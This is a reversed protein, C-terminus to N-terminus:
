VRTRTRNYSPRLLLLLCGSFLRGRGTSEYRYLARARVSYKALVVCM